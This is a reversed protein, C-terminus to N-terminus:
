LCDKLTNVLEQNTLECKLIRENLKDIDEKM